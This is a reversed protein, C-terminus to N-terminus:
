YYEDFDDLEIYDDLPPNNTSSNRLFRCAHYGVTSLGSGKVPDIKYMDQVLRIVLEEEDVTLITKPFRISELAEMQPVLQEALKTVSLGTCQGVDL